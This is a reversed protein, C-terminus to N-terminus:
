FSREYVSTEDITMRQKYGLLAFPYLIRQDIVIFTPPNKQLAKATELLTDKTATIHYAAAYKGPPIRNVLKYIQASNSWLFVTDTPALHNRLFDAIEYDRPTNKDFFAQYDVVSKHGTIFSVFNQYYFVTKGFYTFNKLLLIITLAYIVLIFKKYKEGMMLLGLLLCLSPLVVLVYHTYPRQSFFANFLSFFLWVLCFLTHTELQKRKNLLFLLSGGLMLLKLILLGQPIIFTNGYGVYGVNQAFSAHIFDGLAGKSLFFLATLVIPTGFGVVYPTLIEIIEKIKKTQFHVIFIFSAFAAFDFLAVIKFLFALGLLLGPLFFGLFYSLKKQEQNRQYVLFAAAIIPLLMFNEANAINGEILPIGFLFAYVATSIFVVEREKKTPEVNKFFLLKALKFFAFVSFLGFFLSVFRVTFQDSNFIAYLIYLLPPKNDWIGQYLLRGHRMALGLVQYIGEDGYWYPEFLSPFRLLFFAISTIFLFWFERSKELKTLVAKM